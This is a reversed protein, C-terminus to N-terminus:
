VNFTVELWPIFKQFVGKVLSNLSEEVNMHHIFGSVALIFIAVASLEIIKKM